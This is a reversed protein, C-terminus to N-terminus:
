VEPTKLASVEDIVDDVEQAWEMISLVRDIVEDRPPTNRTNWKPITTPDELWEGYIGFDCKDCEVSNQYVGTRERYHAEGGCFPCSKLKHAM